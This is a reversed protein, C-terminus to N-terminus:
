PPAHADTSNLLEGVKELTCSTSPLSGSVQMCTDEAVAENAKGFVSEQCNKM